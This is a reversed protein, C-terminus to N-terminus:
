AALSGVARRRRRYRGRGCPRVRPPPRRDDGGPDDPIAVAAPRQGHTGVPRHQRRAGLVTRGARPGGLGDLDDRDVGEGVVTTVCDFGWHDVRDEDGTPFRVSSGAHVTDAEGEPAAPRGAVIGVVLVALVVVLM